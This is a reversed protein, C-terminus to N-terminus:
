NFKNKKQILDMLVPFHRGILFIIVLYFIHVPLSFFERKTFTLYKTQKIGVLACLVTLTLGLSMFIKNYKQNGFM